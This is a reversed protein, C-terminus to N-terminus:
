ARKIYGEGPWALGLGGDRGPGGPGRPESPGLRTLCRRGFNGEICNKEQSM